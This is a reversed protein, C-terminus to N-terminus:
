SLAILKERYIGVNSSMMHILISINHYQKDAFSQEMDIDDNREPPFDLSAIVNHETWSRHEQAM